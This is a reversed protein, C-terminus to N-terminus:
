SGHFAIGVASAATCAMAATAVFELLSEVLSM